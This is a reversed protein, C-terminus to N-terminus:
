QIRFRCLSERCIKILQLCTACILLINMQQINCCIMKSLYVPLSLMSYVWHCMVRTGGFLREVSLKVSSSEKSATNSMNQANPLYQEVAMVCTSFEGSRIGGLRMWSNLLYVEWGSRDQAVTPYVLKWLLTYNGARVLPIM